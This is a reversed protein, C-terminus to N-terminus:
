DQLATLVRAIYKKFQIYGNIDIKIYKGRLLIEICANVHTM